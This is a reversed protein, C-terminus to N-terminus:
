KGTAKSETVLMNRCIQNNKVYENAGYTVPKGNTSVRTECVEKLVLVTNPWPNTASVTIFEASSPITTTIIAFICGIQFLINKLM